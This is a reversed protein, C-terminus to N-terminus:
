ENRVHILMESCIHRPQRTVFTNHAWVPLLLSSTTDAPSLTSTVSGRLSTSSLAKTIGVGRSPLCIFLIFVKRQDRWQDRWQDASVSMQLRNLISLTNNITAEDGWLCVICVVPMQDSVGFIVAAHHFFPVAPRKFEALHWWMWRRSFILM